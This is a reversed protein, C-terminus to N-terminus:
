AVRDLDNHTFLELRLAVVAAEADELSKFYGASYGKGNHGVYTTWLDRGPKRYVGRVGSKSSWKAGKRNETNQKHTVARLHGPNVCGRNHCTHDVDFGAPITGCFSEYAFRHAPVRTRQSTFRGYGTPTKYALWNWCTDTKEVKAIFRAFADPDTM